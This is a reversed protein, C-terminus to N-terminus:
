LRTESEILEFELDGLGREAFREVLRHSHRKVRAINEDNLGMTKISWGTQTRTLMLSAQHFVNGTLSILVQNEQGDPSSVQSVALREVHREVLAMFEEIDRVAIVPPTIENTPLLSPQVYSEMSSVTSSVFDLNPTEETFSSGTGDEFPARGQPEYSDTFPDLEGQQPARTTMQESQTPARESQKTLKKEGKAMNRIQEADVPHRTPEQGINVADGHKQPTCEQFIKAFEKVAEPTAHRGGQALQGAIKQVPKHGDQPISGSAVDSPATFRSQLLREYNSWAMM